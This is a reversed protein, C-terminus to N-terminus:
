FCTAIAAQLVNDWYSGDHTYPPLIVGYPMLREQFTTVLSPRDHLLIAYSLEKQMQLLRHAPLVIKDQKLRAALGEIQDLARVTSPPYEFLLAWLPKGQESMMHQYVQGWTDLHLQEVCVEVVEQPGKGSYRIEELDLGKRFFQRVAIFKRVWATAKDTAQNHQLLFQEYRAIVFRSDLDEMSGIAVLEQFQTLFDLFSQYPPTTALISDYRITHALNSPYLERLNANVADFFLPHAANWDGLAQYAFLTALPEHLVLKELYHLYDKERTTTFPLSAASKRLSTVWEILGQPLTEETLAQDFLADLSVDYGFGEVVVGSACHNLFREILEVVMKNWPNRPALAPQDEVDYALLCEQYRTLDCQFIRKVFLHRQQLSTAVEVMLPDYPLYPSTADVFLTDEESLNIAIRDVLTKLKLAGFRATHSWEIGHLPLINIKQPYELGYSYSHAAKKYYHEVNFTSDKWLKTNEADQIFYIEDLKENTLDLADVVYQVCLDHTTQAEYVKHIQDIACRYYKAYRSQTLQEESHLPNPYTILINKGM